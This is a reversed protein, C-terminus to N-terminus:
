HHFIVFLSLRLIMLNNEFTPLKILNNMSVMIKKQYLICEVQDMELKLLQFKTGLHFETIPKVKCKLLILHAYSLCNHELMKFSNLLMHDKSPLILYFM